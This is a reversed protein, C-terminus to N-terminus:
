DTSDDRKLGAELDENADGNNKPKDDVDVDGCVNVDVGIADEIEIGDEVGGDSDVNAHGVMNDSIIDPQCAGNATAKVSGVYVQGQRNPAYVQCTMM